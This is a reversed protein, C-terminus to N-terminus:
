RSRVEGRSGAPSEAGELPEGALVRAPNAITLRQAVDDGLRSALLRRAAELGPPRWEPSHADSSVFHVLDRELMEWVTREAPRGLEGTVCMATVQLRAGVSVLDTVRDLDTALVPILEPHALVPIWGAVLAEHILDEPEPGTGWRDLELLVYRSEALSLFSPDAADLEAVLASDVRVEAGLRIELLDGVAERLREFAARFTARDLDPWSPHRQHPTAVMATCGDGAAVRCMEVSVALERPGDDVGPLIHCHLDIM